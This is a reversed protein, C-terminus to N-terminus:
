SPFRSNKASKRHGRLDSNHVDDRRDNDDGNRIGHKSSSKANSEGIHRAHSGGTKKDNDSDAQVHEEPRKLKPLAPARLAANPAMGMAVAIDAMMSVFVMRVAVMSVTLIALTMVAVLVVVMMMM